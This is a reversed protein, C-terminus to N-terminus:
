VPLAQFDGMLTEVCFLKRFDEKFINQIIEYDTILDKHLGLAMVKSKLDAPFLCVQILTQPFNFSDADYLCLFM